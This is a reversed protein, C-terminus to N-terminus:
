EVTDLEREILLINVDGWKKMLCDYAEGFSWADIYEQLVLDEQTIQYKFTLKENMSM